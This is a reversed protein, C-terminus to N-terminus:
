HRKMKFKFRKQIIVDIEEEAHPVIDHDEM